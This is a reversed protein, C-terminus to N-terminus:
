KVQKPEIIKPYNSIDVSDKELSRIDEYIKSCFSDPGNSSFVLVPPTRRVKSLFYPTIIASDESVFVSMTNYLYFGLIKVNVNNTENAKKLTRITDEIKMLLSNRDCGIKEAHLDIAKSDPHMIMIVTKKNPDKFREVFSDYHSGVWTRGDNLVAYLNDTEKIFGSFDFHSSENVCHEIGLKRLEVGGVFYDKINSAREIAEKGLQIIGNQLHNTQTNTISIFENRLIFEYLAGTFGAVLMVTSLHESFKTLLPHVKPDNTLAIVMFILGVIVIGLLVIIYKYRFRINSQTQEM